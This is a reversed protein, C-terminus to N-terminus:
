FKNAILILENLTKRFSALLTEVEKTVSYLKSSLMKDETSIQAKIGLEKLNTNIFLLMDDELTLDSFSKFKHLILETTEIEVERDDILAAILSKARVEVKDKNIERGMDVIEKYLEQCLAARESMEILGEALLIGSQEVRAVSTVVSSEFLNTGGERLSYIYHTYVAMDLSAEDFGKATLIYKNRNM